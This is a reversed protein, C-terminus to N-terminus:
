VESDAAGITTPDAAQGADTDMETDGDGVVHKRRFYAALFFALGSGFLGFLHEVHNLVVGLFLNELNTALTAVVLMAYGVVFWKSQSRYQLLVPILGLLAIIPLVLKNPDMAEMGAFM